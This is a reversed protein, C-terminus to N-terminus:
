VEQELLKVEESCLTKTERNIINNSPTNCLNNAAILMKKGSPSNTRGKQISWRGVLSKEETRMTYGNLLQEVTDYSCFHMYKHTTM